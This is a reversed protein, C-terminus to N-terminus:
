FLPILSHLSEMNETISREKKNKILKLTELELNRERGWGPYNRIIFFYDTCFKLRSPCHFLTSM